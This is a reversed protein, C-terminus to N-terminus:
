SVGLASCTGGSSHQRGHTTPVHYQRRRHRGLLHCMRHGLEAGSALGRARRSRQRYFLGRHSLFLVDAVLGWTSGCLHQIWLCFNFLNISTSANYPDEKKRVGKVACDFTSFLGGFVAFNGGLVPARAKVATLAGVGREGYPSNRYGKVGHWITGGIAQYVCVYDDSGVYLQCCRSATSFFLVAAYM